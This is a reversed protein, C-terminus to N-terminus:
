IAIVPTGQECRQDLLLNPRGSSVKQSVVVREIEGTQFFGEEQCLIRRISISSILLLRTSKGLPIYELQIMTALRTKEDDRMKDTEAPHRRIIISMITWKHLLTQFRQLM